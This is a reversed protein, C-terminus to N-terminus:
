YQYENLNNELIFKKRAESADKATDFTGLKIVRKNIGIYARFKDGRPSVGMYGTQNKRPINKNCVQFHWNVWRVNGPRYNDENDIRDLTMGPEGYHPLKTIHDYFTKFNNRWEDCMKIGRAGYYKYSQQSKNNCRRKIRCWLDYEASDALGHTKHNGKAQCGCSIVGRSKARAISTEFKKGCYRCTFMAKRMGNDIRTDYLYICEGIYQGKQYIIKQSM